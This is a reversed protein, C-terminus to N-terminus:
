KKKRGIRHLKSSAGRRDNALSAPRDADFSTKIFERFAPSHGAALFAKRVLEHIYHHSQIEPTSMANM